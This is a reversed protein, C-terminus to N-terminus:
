EVTIATDRLLMEPLLIQRILEIKTSSWDAFCKLAQCRFAPDL